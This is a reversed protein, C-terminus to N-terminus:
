TLIASAILGIIWLTVSGVMIGMINNLLKKAKIADKTEMERLLKESSDCIDKRINENENKMEVLKIEYESIIEDYRIRQDSMDDRLKSVVGYLSSVVEKTEMKAEIGDIKEEHLSLTEVIQKTTNAILAVNTSMEHISSILKEQNNLRTTNSKSRSDIEAIKKIHEKMLADDAGCINVVRSVKNGDEMKEEM